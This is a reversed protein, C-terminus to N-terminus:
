SKGRKQVPALFGRSRAERVWKAATTYPVQGAEAIGTTPRKTLTQLRLYVRAVEAYFDDPTQGEGRALEPEASRVVAIEARGAVVEILWRNRLEDPTPPEVQEWRPWAAQVTTLQGVSLSRLLEATPPAYIVTSVPIHVGETAVYAVAIYESVGQWYDIGYWVRQQQYGGLGIM